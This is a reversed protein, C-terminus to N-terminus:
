DLNQMEPDFAVDMGSLEPNEHSSVWNIFKKNDVMKINYKRMKDLIDSYLNNM